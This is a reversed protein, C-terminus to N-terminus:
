DVGLLDGTMIYSGNKSKVKFSTENGVVVGVIVVHTLIYANRSEISSMSQNISQNIGEDIFTLDLKSVHKHGVDAM